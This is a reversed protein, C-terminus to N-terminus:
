SLRRLAIIRPPTSIIFTFVVTVLGLFDAESVAKEGEAGLCNQGKTYCNHHKCFACNM